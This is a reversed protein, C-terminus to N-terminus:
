KVLCTSVALYNLTKILSTTNLWHLTIFNSIGVFIDKERRGGKKRVEERGGEREEKRRKKREEKRGEEREREGM